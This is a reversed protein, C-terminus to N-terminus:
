SENRHSWTKTAAGKFGSNITARAEAADLGIAKAADLLANFAATKDLKDDHVLQGMRFASQILAENRYHRVGSLAAVERNLAVRGYADGDRIESVQTTKHEVADRSQVIQILWEPAPAFPANWDQCTYVAGSKHVSCPGVVSGDEGKWDLGQIFGTRSKLLPGSFYRHDGRSTKVTFTSPLPSYQRELKALEAYGDAGDTDLINLFGGDIETGTRVAVNLLRGAWISRIKQLDVTSDHLGHSRPLPRKTRFILPFVPVGRRALEVASERTTKPATM